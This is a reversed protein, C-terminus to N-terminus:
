HGYNYGIWITGDPTEIEVDESGCCGRMGAEHYDAEEAANGERAYRWNDVCEEDVADEFEEIVNIQLQTWGLSLLGAEFSGHKEQANDIVSM